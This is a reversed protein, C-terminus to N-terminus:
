VGEMGMEGGAFLEDASAAVRYNMLDTLIELTPFNLLPWIQYLFLKRLISKEKTRKEIVTANLDKRNIKM